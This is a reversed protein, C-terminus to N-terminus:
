TAAELDIMKPVELDSVTVNYVTEFAAGELNRLQLEYWVSNTKMVEEVTKINMKAAAVLDIRSLLSDSNGAVETNIAGVLAAKQAEASGHFESVFAVDDKSLPYRLGDDNPATTIMTYGVDGGPLVVTRGEYQQVEGPEFYGEEVYTPEGDVVEVSGGYGVACGIKVTGILVGSDGTASFSYSIIKGVASHGPLRRDFIQANMRLSLSVAREFHCQFEIEVARSRMLLNARALAILYQISRQGRALTFFAPRKIDGIAGTTGVDRSSLTLLMSEDEGPLTVLSQVNTHLTFQVRETRAREVDYSIVLNTDVRWLPIYSKTESISSAGIGSKGQFGTLWSVAGFKIVPTSSTTQVSMTDGTNHKESSNSWSYSYDINKSEEVNYFDIATGIVVAYGGSLGSGSKPWESILSSGTYTSIKNRGLDIQGAWAQSWAVSADVTVSRLPAQNLSVSVSDYPVDGETFVETGDEGVLVDSTTVAHTVRDIHWLESRAELVTDPDNIADESLWLDDYYAGSRMTNALAIKLDAYNPPRATFLLDVIENNINSPIGILRGFFLPVVEDGNFWSLWGWTKRAPALLGINPNRVSITLAAFDGEEQDCVFSIIEEDEVCHVSPNFATGSNVWAWFFPGSAIKFSAVDRAESAQLTGTPM